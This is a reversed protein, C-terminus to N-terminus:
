CKIKTLDESNTEKEDVKELRFMQIFYIICAVLGCLGYFCVWFVTAWSPMASEIMEM